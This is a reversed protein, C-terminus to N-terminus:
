YDDKDRFSWRDMRAEEERRATAEELEWQEERGLGAGGHVVLRAMAGGLGNCHTAVWRRRRSDAAAKEM